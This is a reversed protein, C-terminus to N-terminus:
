AATGPRREFDIPSRYGLTSHLRRRNYFGEIYTTIQASAEARTTWVRHDLDMKLTRFFSEVVANDYCRGRGSMSCRVRHTRLAAQYASSAYQTGRDSHHLRPATRRMVVARHWAMLVLQTDMTRGLAWGVVRRSYADIVFAGDGHRVLGPRLCAM